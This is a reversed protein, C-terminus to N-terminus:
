HHDFSIVRTQQWSGSKKTWILTFRVTADLHESGDQQLSYIEQIGAEVADYPPVADIILTKDDLHRRLHIGEKCRNRMSALIQDRDRAGINDQYFELDDSLFNGYRELDCNEYAEFIQHDAASIEAALQAHPLLAPARQLDLEAHESSNTGTGVARGYLHGKSLHLTFETVRGAPVRFTVVKGVIHGDVFPSQADINPGISGNLTSEQSEFRVVVQNHSVTGNPNAIAFTGSWTGSIDPKISAVEFSALPEKSSPPDPSGASATSQADPAAKAQAATSCNTVLPLVLVGCFLM